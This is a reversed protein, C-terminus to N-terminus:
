RLVTDGTQVTKLGVVAIIDGAGTEEVDERKDAHMRLLRGIRENRSKAVNYVSQGTKLSGSYIRLFALQGVYPDTM